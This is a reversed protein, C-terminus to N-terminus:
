SYVKVLVDLYPQFLYTRNRRQETLQRLISRDEFKEMIGSVSNYSKGLYATAEPMGIVPHQFLMSLLQLADERTKIFLSDERIENNLNKELLEIDKARKWADEASEILAQLYFRIWGEFDGQLRVRDLAAYYELHHKKFAYSPYIIPESILGDNILMLVILLRGIRGNGDLFLHITEFQVHALGAKILPLVTDDTNIFVELNKILDPIHPATPPVLQGVRVSQQRYMGPSAKDGDSGQMLSQHAALIVRSLIPMSQNRVLDLAVDLSKTYNMVLQTEKNPRFDATSESLIDILTTHIGEIDSSLMAEKTIYARILRQINPVRQTMENLRGLQHMVKGYLDILSHDMQFPPNQPPLGHPIFHDLSGLIEYQGTIRM